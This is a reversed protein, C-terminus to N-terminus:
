LLQKWYIGLGLRFDLIGSGYNGLNRIRMEVDVPATRLTRNPDFNTVVLPALAARPGGEEDACAKPPSGEPCSV